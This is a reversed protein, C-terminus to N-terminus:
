ENNGGIRLEVITTGQNFFDRKFQKIRKDHSLYEHVAKRLIDEGVGHIIIIKSNKLTINDDVFEKTLILANEKYEGHLDLTPLKTTM